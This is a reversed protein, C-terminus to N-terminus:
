DRGPVWDGDISISSERPKGSAERLLAVLRGINSSFTGVFMEAKTLQDLDAFMYVCAPYDQVIRPIVHHMIYRLQAWSTLWRSIGPLTLRDDPRLLFAGAPSTVVQLINGWTEHTIAGLVRTGSTGSVGPSFGLLM